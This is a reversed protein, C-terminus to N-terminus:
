YKGRLYNSWLLLIGKILNMLSASAGIMTLGNTLMVILLTVLIIGIVRMRGFLAMSFVAITLADLLFGDGVDVNAM